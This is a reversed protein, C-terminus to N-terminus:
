RQLPASVSEKGKATIKFVTGSSSSKGGNTTTGYLNGSSDRTLAGQPGEGDPVGGDFSHLQTFKGKSGIKFVTGFNNEGGGGSTTGYLNGSADRLLAGLPYAGDNNLNTFSHLVTLKGKPSLKYVVAGGASLWVTATRIAASNPPATCIEKQM